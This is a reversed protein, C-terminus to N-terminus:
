REGTSRSQSRLPYRHRRRLQSMVYVQLLVDYPLTKDIANLLPDRNPRLNYGGSPMKLSVVFYIGGFFFVACRVKTAPRM